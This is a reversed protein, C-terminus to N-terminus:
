RFSLLLHEVMEANILLAHTSRDAGGHFYHLQSLQRVPQRYIHVTIGVLSVGYHDNVANLRVGGEPAANLASHHLHDGDPEALLLPCLGAM